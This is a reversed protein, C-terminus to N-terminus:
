SINKNTLRERESIPVCKSRTDLFTSKAPGTAANWRRLDWFRRGELWLTKGRESRLIPWAEAATTATLTSLSHYARVQNIFGMAAPVDSGILAAEARILLMETGKALAIKAGDDLYKQQRYWPTRGNAANAQGGSSTLVRVWPIRPDGTTNAWETNWVTYEGRVLTVAQFGNGERATNLSYVADYRYAIPVLAADAVAGTWNGLAMRVQARGALAANKLTTNNLATAIRLAEDFYQEARKFHETYAQSPGGDFVANCANEGLIRNAFGAHLYARPTQAFTEFGTGLVEKMRELGKEAVWRARHVDDWWPDIDIPNIIGQAFITPAGLTGSHYLDDSWVSGWITTTSLAVSLDGSMGVVLAPMASPTNLDVDNIPGPNTVDLLGDCGALLLAAGLAVGKM